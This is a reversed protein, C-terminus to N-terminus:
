LKRGRVRITAKVIIVMYAVSATPAASGVYAVVGGVVPPAAGTDVFTRDEPDPLMRWTKTYMSDFLPVTSSRPLRIINTISPTPAVQAEFTAWFLGTLYLGATSVGPVPVVTLEVMETRYENWLNTIQNTFNGYATYVSANTITIQQALAVGAVCSYTTSWKLGILETRAYNDRPARAVQARRQKSKRNRRVM